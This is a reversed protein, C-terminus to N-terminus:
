KFLSMVWFPDRLDAIQIVKNTVDDVAVYHIDDVYYLTVSNGTYKNVSNGLKVPNNIADAIKDNTWGRITVQNNYAPTYLVM